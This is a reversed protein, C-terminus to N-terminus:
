NFMVDDRSFTFNGLKIETPESKGGVEKVELFNGVFSKLRAQIIQM